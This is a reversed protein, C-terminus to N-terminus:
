VGRRHYVIWYNPLITHVIWVVVNKCYIIEDIAVIYILANHVDLATNAKM